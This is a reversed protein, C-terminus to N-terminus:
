EQSNTNASRFRGTPTRKPGPSAKAKPMEAPPSGPRKLIKLKRQAVARKIHPDRLVEVPLNERTEGASLHLTPAHKLKVNTARLDGKKTQTTRVRTEVVWRLGASARNPVGRLEFTLM